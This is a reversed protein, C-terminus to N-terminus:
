NTFQLTKIINILISQYDVGDIVRYTFWLPVQSNKPNKLIYSGSANDGIYTGDLNSINVNRQNEKGFYQIAFKISDEYTLQLNLSIPIRDAVYTGTQEKPIVMNTPKSILFGPGEEVQWDVPLKFKFGYSDNTYTKWNITPDIVPPTTPEPTPTPTPQIQTKPQPKSSQNKLNASETGYWYGAYAPGALLGLGVVAAVIIKTWDTSTAETSQSQVPQTTEVTEM